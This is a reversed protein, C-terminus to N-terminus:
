NLKKERYIVKFIINTIYSLLIKNIVNFYWLKIKNLLCILLCDNIPITHETLKTNFSNNPM